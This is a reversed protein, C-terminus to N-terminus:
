NGRRLRHVASDNSAVANVFYHYTNEEYKDEKNKMRCSYDM